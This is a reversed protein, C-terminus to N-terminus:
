SRPQEALKSDLVSSIKATATKSQAFGNLLHGLYIESYGTLVALERTRLGARVKKAKLELQEPYPRAM